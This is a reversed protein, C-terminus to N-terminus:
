RNKCVSSVPALAIMLQEFEHYVMEITIENIQRLAESKDYVRANMVHLEPKEREVKVIRHFAGSPPQERDDVPGVIDITPVHLAEAIYQPGTDVGILVDLTSIAAKLEEISLLGVGSVMKVSHAIKRIIKARLLDKKSGLLVFITDPYEQSIMNALTGFREPMWAKVENGAGPIIGIRLTSRSSGVILHARSLADTTFFIEKQTDDTEIGLPELLRLYERPAYTGMRHPVSTVFRTLLRYLRTEYPSWGDTIRPVVIMPIGVILSIALLEFNPSTLCISDIKKKKLTVIWEGLSQPHIVYEDVHPNGHLLDRNSPNGFVLLGRNPYKQKIARFMPTTCVMDGLKAMQIVAINKKDTSHKKPIFVAFFVGLLFLTGIRM